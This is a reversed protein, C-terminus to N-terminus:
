LNLSPRIREIKCMLNDYVGELNRIVEDNTYRAVTIGLANLAATRRADYGASDAHSDGDIEIALRLESCYFDVIFDAIPKQRLFKYDAFHRARLVENWMRTEPTTPNKRNERALTTLKKNYPIFGKVGGPRGKDPSSYEAVSAKTFDKSLLDSAHVLEEGSLPLNPPTPKEDNM